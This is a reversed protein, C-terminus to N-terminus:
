LPWYGSTDERCASVLVSPWRGTPWHTHSVTWAMPQQAKTRRSAASDAMAVAHSHSSFYKKKKKMGLNVAVRSRLLAFCEYFTIYKCPFPFGVLFVDNRRASIIEDRPHTMSRHGVYM